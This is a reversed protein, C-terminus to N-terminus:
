PVEIQSQSLSIRGPRETVPEDVLDVLYSKKGKWVAGHCTGSRTSRDKSAVESIGHGSIKASSAIDAHGRIVRRDHFSHSPIKM